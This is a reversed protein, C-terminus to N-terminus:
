SLVEPDVRRRFIVSLLTAVLALEAFEFVLNLVVVPIIVGAGVVAGYLMGVSTVVAHAPLVILGVLVLINTLVPRTSVWSLRIGLRRDVAVAPLVLGVAMIATVGLLAALLALLIPGGPIEMLSPTLLVAPLAALVGVFGVLIANGLFRFDRKSLSLRPRTTEANPGFLVLRHWDVMFAVYAMILVPLAVIALPSIEPPGEGTLNGTTLIITGQAIFAATFPTLAVQPMHRLLDLFTRLVEAATEAVPVPEPKWEKPEPQSTM